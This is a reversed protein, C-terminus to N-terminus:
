WGTLGPTLAITPRLSLRCFLIPLDCLCIKSLFSKVFAGLRRLGLVGNLSFLLQKFWGAWLCSVNLSSLLLCWLGLVLGHHSLSDPKCSIFCFGPHLSNELHHHMMCSMCKSKCAARVLVKNQRATPQWASLCHWAHYAVTLCRVMLDLM